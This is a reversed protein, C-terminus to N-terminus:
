QDRLLRAAEHLDAITMWGLCLPRASRASFGPVYTESLFPFSPLSLHMVVGSAFFRIFFLVAAIFFKAFSSQLSVILLVKMLLFADFSCSTTRSIGGGGYGQRWKWCPSSFHGATQHNSISDTSWISLWFRCDAGDHGTKSFSM